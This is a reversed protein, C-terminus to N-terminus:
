PAPPHDKPPHPAPDPARSVRVQAARLMRGRRTYGRRTEDCVTGPPLDSRTEVAVAEHFKPDFPSNRTEIEAVGESALIERLEARILTVGEVFAKGGENSSALALDLHDVVSLIRHLFSDVTRDVKAEGDRELRRRSNQFEAALRALRDQLELHDEPLALAEAIPEPTLLGEDPVAPDLTAPDREKRKM